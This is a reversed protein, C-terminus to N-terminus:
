GHTGDDLARCRRPQRPRGSARQRAGLPRLSALVKRAATRTADYDGRIRADLMAVIARSLAYRARRKRPVTGARAEAIQVYGQAQELRGLALAAGAGVLALEASGALLRAAPGDIWGSLEGAEGHAVLSVWHDSVLEGASTVDGAAVAHRLASYPQATPPLGDRRAGISRAGLGRAHPLAAPNEAARPVLPHYRYRHRREDLATLFANSRELGALVRAGDDRGTLANVLDPELEDVVSSRLM